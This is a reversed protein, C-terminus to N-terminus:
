TLTFVSLLVFKPLTLPFQFAYPRVIPQREDSNTKRQPSFHTSAPFAYILWDCGREWDDEVIESTIDDGTLSTPFIRRDRETELRRKYSPYRSSAQTRPQVLQHVAYDAVATKQITM